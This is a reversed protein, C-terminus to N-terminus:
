KLKVWGYSILDDVSLGMWPLAYGKSRIYQYAPYKMTSFNIRNDDGIFVSDEIHACNNFKQVIVGKNAEREISIHEYKCNFFESELKAVEIADEDTIQSLPTLEAYYNEPNNIIDLIGFVVGPGQYSKISDKNEAYCHLLFKAKNELTNELKEM